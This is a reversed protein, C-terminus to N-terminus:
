AMEALLRRANSPENFGSALVHRAIQGHSAIWVDPFSKFYTILEDFVAIMLPRGGFQSHISLALYSMPENAYLYDFTRKYTELLLHPATKLVRNDTYDSGPIAVMRRGNISIAHPVDAHAAENHWLVGQDALFGITHETHAHVPTVWGTPRVGTARELADLCKGITAREEDPTMHALLQDQTYGHGAIEFGAAHIAKVADPFLETCAANISFNAPIGHRKLMGLILWVGSTGGYRSWAIGGHNVHGADVSSTQVSYSPAKGESWVELDVNIAIALRKSKPWAPEVSM